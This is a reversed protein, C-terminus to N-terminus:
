PITAIFCLLHTIINDSCSANVENSLFIVNDMYRFLFVLARVVVVEEINALLM